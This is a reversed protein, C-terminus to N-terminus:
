REGGLVNYEKGGRVIILQGDRLIKRTKRLEYNTIEEIGEDEPMAIGWSVDDIYYTVAGDAGNPGVYRFGIYFVDAMTAAFPALDLYFTIWQMNEASTEPISFSGTLDQFKREDPQAPDIYYVELSAEIGEEPLYEGMVKFAFVKDETNLYDLPPTVLWMEWIGTSDTNWQYATAKAYKGEGRVPSTKDEEFGWWPRADAAAVNQWRSLALPANHHVSDFTEELVTLPASLDWAFEQAWETPVPVDPITDGGEGGETAISDTEIVSFGDFLAKVNKDLRVRVRYKSSKEPKSTEVVITQWGEVLSDAIVRQLKDAEHAKMEDADGGPKPEWYCDLSITKNQPMALVNYNLTMRFVRGVPYSEDPLAIEQDLVGALNGGFCLSVDGDIKDNEEANGLGLPMTWDEWACGFLPNCSYEEFSGNKVLNVVETSNVSGIICMAAFLPIIRKM